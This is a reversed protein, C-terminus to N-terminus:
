FLEEIPKGHLSIHKRHLPDQVLPGSPTGRASVAPIFTGTDLIPVVTGSGLHSGNHNHYTEHVSITNQGWITCQRQVSFGEELVVHPRLQYCSPGRNSSTPQQTWRLM